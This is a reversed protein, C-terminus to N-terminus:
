RLWNRLRKLARIALDLACLRSRVPHEEAVARRERAPAAKEFYEDTV